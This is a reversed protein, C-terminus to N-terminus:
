PLRAIARLQDRLESSRRARAAAAIAGHQDGVALALEVLLV